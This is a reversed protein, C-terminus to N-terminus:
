EDDNEPIWDEANLATIRPRFVQNFRELQTALWEYQQTWDNEDLPDTDQKSLSIRSRESTPLENWDLTEGFEPYAFFM